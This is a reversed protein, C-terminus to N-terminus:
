APEEALESTCSPCRTAAVDIVSRCHPCPQRPVPELEVGHKKGFCELALEGLREPATV